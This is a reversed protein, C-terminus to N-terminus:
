RRRERMTTQGLSTGLTKRQRPTLTQLWREFEIRALRGLRDPPFRTGSYRAANKGPAPRTLDDPNLNAAARGQTKANFVM